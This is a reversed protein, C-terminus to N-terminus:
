GNTQLAFLMENSSQLLTKGTKIVEAGGMLKRNSGHDDDYDGLDSHTEESYADVEEIFDGDVIMKEKAEYKAKQNSLHKMVTLKEQDRGRNNNVRKM